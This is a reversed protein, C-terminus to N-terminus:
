SNIAGSGAGAAAGEAASPPEALRAGLSLLKRRLERVNIPKTWYDDFGAAMAQTVQEPMADASLAV